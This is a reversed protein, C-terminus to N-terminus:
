IHSLRHVISAGSYTSFDRSLNVFINFSMSLAQSDKHLTKRIRMFIFVEEKSLVTTPILWTIM